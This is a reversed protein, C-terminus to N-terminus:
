RLLAIVKGTSFVPYVTYLRLRALSRFADEHITCLGDIAQSALPSHVFVDVWDVSTTLIRAVALGTKYYLLKQRLCIFKLLKDSHKSGRSDCPQGKLPSM